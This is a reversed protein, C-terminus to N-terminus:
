RPLAAIRSRFSDLGPAKGGILKVADTVGYVCLAMTRNDVADTNLDGCTASLSSHTFRCYIRYPMNYFGDIGASKAAQSM